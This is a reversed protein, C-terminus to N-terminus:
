QFNIAMPFRLARAYLECASNHARANKSTAGQANSREAETPSFQCNSSARSNDARVVSAEMAAGSPPMMMAGGSSRTMAGGGDLFKGRWNKKEVRWVVEVVLVFNVGGSRKVMRWFFM